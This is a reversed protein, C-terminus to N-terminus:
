VTVGGGWLSLLVESSNGYRPYAYGALAQSVYGSLSESPALLAYDGTTSNFAEGLQVVGPTATNNWAFGLEEDESYGSLGAITDAHDTGSSNVVRNLTARDSATQDPVYYVQAELPYWTRETPGVTTIRDTGNVVRYLTRLVTPTPITSKPPPPPPQSTQTGGGCASEMILLLGVLWLCIFIHSRM